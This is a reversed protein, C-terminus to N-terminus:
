KSWPPSNKFNVGFAAKRADLIKQKEKEKEDEAIECKEILFNADLFTRYAVGLWGKEWYHETNEYKNDLQIEDACGDLQPLNVHKRGM